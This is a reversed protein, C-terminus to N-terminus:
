DLNIRSILALLDSASKKWSFKNLVVSNDEIKDKTIEDLNISEYKYPDIYWVSKGYIEPLSSVNSVICKTGTSMAEMPPIGFGEYKSPQIFAKAHKMLSKIEGDSLFGTFIVNHLEEKSVDNYSKFVSDSGSVVFIDNPNLKAASMIWEINKNPSRSGLSFYYGKDKLNFRNLISDDEKIRSFHQWANPIIVIKSNEIKYFKLIDNKASESVTM